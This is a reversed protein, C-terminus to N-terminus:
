QKDVKSTTAGQIDVCYRDFTITVRSEPYGKKLCDDETYGIIGGTIIIFLIFSVGV